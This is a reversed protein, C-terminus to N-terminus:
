DQCIIGTVFGERVVAMCGFMPAYPTCKGLMPLKQRGHMWKKIRDRQAPTLAALCLGECEGTDACLRGGDHTPMKCFPHPFIGAPGWRGGAQECALQSRPIGLQSGCSKTPMTYEPQGVAIWKGDSCTWYGAASALSTSATWLFIAALISRSSRHSPRKVVSVTFELLRRHLWPSFAELPQGIFTRHGSFKRESRAAGLFRDAAVARRAHPM